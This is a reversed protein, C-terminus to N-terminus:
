VIMIVNYQRAGKISIEVDTVFILIIIVVNLKTNGM